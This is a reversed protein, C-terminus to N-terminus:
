MMCCGGGGGINPIEIRPIDIRPLEISEIARVANNLETSIAEGANSVETNISDGLNSTEKSISDGINELEKGITGGVHEISKGFYKAESEITRGTDEAVDKVSSEFNEFSQEVVYVFKEFDTPTKTNSPQNSANIADILAQLMAANATKYKNTQEVLVVMLKAQQENATAFSKGYSMMNDLSTLILKTTKMDNTIAHIFFLEMLDNELKLKFDNKKAADGLLAKENFKQVAKSSTREHADVLDSFSIVPQDKNSLKQMEKHYYQTAERKKALM